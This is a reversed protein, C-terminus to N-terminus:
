PNTTFRTFCFSFLYIFGCGINCEFAIIGATPFFFICILLQLFHALHMLSSFFMESVTIEWSFFEENSPSIWLCSFKTLQPVLLRKYLNSYVTWLLRSFYLALFTPQCEFIIPGYLRMPLLFYNINLNKSSRSFFPNAHLPEFKSLKYPCWIFSGDLSSRFKKQKTM